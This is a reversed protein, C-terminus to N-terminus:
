KVKIMEIPQKELEDLPHSQYKVKAFNINSLDICRITSNHFTKYYVKRNTLDIVSTWQTASPLDPAKGVKHETGIPIDFNNLIHFCQMVTKEATAQLPATAKYFAARVFRSPPTADGPLGLFGSNGGIPSVRFEGMMKDPADGSFLNVYNNLNTLHWDFSPANTIVGVANEYVLPVGDEFELVVQKGSADAIRWHVVALADLGAVRVKELGEVVEDVSSFQTLMWQVLQLDGVTYYEDIEVFPKYGGYNPFFFLGASLGKENIGEAIFEKQVVSLGVVGYKAKYKMGEANVPTFSSLQEGRPIIVYESRLSMKSNEITRGQIYSGDEASLSIGTCAFAEVGWVCVAMLTILVRRMFDSKFKISFIVSPM